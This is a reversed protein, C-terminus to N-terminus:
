WPFITDKRLQRALVFHTIFAVFLNLQLGSNIFYLTIAVM